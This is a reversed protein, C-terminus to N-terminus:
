LLVNSKLLNPAPGSITSLIALKEMENKFFGTSIIAAPNLGSKLKNYVIDINPIIIINILNNITVYLM